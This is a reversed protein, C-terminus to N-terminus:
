KVSYKLNCPVPLVALFNVVIIVSSPEGDFFLYSALKLELSALMTPLIGKLKMPLIENNLQNKLERLCASKLSQLNTKFIDWLLLLKHATEYMLLIFLLYLLIPTLTM